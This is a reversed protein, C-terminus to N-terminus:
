PRLQRPFYRRVDVPILDTDWPLTWRDPAAYVYPMTPCNLLLTEHAALNISLHWVGPPIFVMQEGQATLPVEQVLGYTPSAPRADFLITLAEGHILCYRDAKEAHVGWGKLSDQRITFVYSHVVPEAWFDPDTAPNVVEFLRGRHDLHVTRSRTLVGDIVSRLPEGAETVTPRDNTGGLTDFDPM